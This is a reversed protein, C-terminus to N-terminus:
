RSPRSRSSRGPSPRTAKPAACTTRPATPDVNGCHRLVIRVQRDPAKWLLDDLVRGGEISEAVIRAIDPALVNAYTVASPLLQVVAGHDYLGLDFARAVQM